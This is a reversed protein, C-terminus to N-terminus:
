TRTLWCITSTHLCLKSHPVPLLYLKWPKMHDFEAILLREYNQHKFHYRERFSSNSNSSPKWASTNLLTVIVRRIIRCTFFLFFLSVYNYMEWSAKFLPGLTLAQVRSLHLNRKSEKTFSNLPVLALHPLLNICVSLGFNNM